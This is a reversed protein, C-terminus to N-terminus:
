EQEDIREALVVLHNRDRDRAATLLTLGSDRATCALRQLEDGAADLEARYRRRFERWRGDRDEHFWKRLANSPALDRRWEDLAAADRAVGRPWLRDVLVRCGDDAEADDYIRKRRIM